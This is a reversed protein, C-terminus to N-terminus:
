LDTRKLLLQFMRNATCLLRVSWIDILASGIGLERTLLKTSRPSWAGRWDVILGDVCVEVFGRGPSRLPNAVVLGRAYEVVETISYTTVKTVHAAEFSFNDSIVMPDLVYARDTNYAIIDPKRFSLGVTIRPERQCTFGKAELAKIVAVVLDNHRAIRLKGSAGCVQLVHALNSVKDPCSRCRKESDMGRGRRARARSPLLNGRVRVAAVYEAGALRITPDTVWASRSGALSHHKLGAGDVSGHLLTKYANQSEVRTEVPTDGVMVPVSARQLQKLLTM